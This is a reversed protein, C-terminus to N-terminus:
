KGRRWPTYGIMPMLWGKHEWTGDDMKFYVKQAGQVPAEPYNQHDIITNREQGYNHPLGSM